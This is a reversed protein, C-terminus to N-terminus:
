VVDKLEPWIDQANVGLAKAVAVMTGLRPEAGDILNSITAHVRKSRRALWSATRNREALIKSLNNSTAMM